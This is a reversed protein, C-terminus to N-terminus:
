TERIHLQTCKEYAKEANIQPPIDISIIELKRSKKLSNKHTRSIVSKDQYIYCVNERM